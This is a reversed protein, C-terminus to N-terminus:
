ALPEKFARRDSCGTDPVIGFVAPEAAPDLVRGPPPRAGGVSGHRGSQATRSGGQAEGDRPRRRRSFFAPAVTTPAPLLRLPAPVAATAAGAPARFPGLVYWWNSM